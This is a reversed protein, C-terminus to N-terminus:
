TLEEFHVETRALEAWEGAADDALDRQTRLCLLDVERALGAGSAAEADCIAAALTAAAEDGLRMAWGRQGRHEVEAQTALVDALIFREGVVPERVCLPITGVTPAEIVRTEPATALCRDALAVLESEEAVALLEARRGAPLPALPPLPALARSPDRGDGDPEPQPLHRDAPAANEGPPM